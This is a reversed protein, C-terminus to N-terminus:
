INLLGRVPRTHEVGNATIEAENQTEQAQPARSNLEPASTAKSVPPSVPSNTPARQIGIMWDPTMSTPLTTTLTLTARGLSFFPISLGHIIISCLVIFAVIPELCAALLEQENKPPYHATPLMYLAFHGSFLAERWTRIEPIWRYLVMMAPIRRLALISLFLVILRWPTIGLEPSDFSKFPLWAGIYIFCACNLVLDVISAFAEGETHDNFEGDWSIASGAAFAALLDDSGITSVVGAIFISLALYQAVYSERDIFGRRHSFKMLHSFALGLIAGTVIGLIVQYLWGVLVWHAVAEEKTKDLILYLSITLFPFALGDNAASEASLIQRLNLPVHRQAYKGGVIAACIIPDTPTLCAAIALCSHFNLRPFLGFLVGSTHVIAMTPVVMVLLSKGHKVMYSKPLEVGIAFLGTALVIRTIERTIFIPSANWSRPDFIDAGHPGIAIGFATGLVVENIYLTEKVCGRVWWPMHIGARPNNGQAVAVLYAGSIFSTARVELLDIAM